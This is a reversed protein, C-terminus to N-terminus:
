SKTKELMMNAFEIADSTENFPFVAVPTKRFYGIIAFKGGLAHTSAFALADLKILDEGSIKRLPQGDERKTITM